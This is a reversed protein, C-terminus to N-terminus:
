LSKHSQVNSVQSPANKVAELLAQKKHPSVGHGILHEQEIDEDILILVALELVFRHIFVESGNYYNRVLQGGDTFLRGKDDFRAKRVYNYLKFDISRKGILFYITQSDNSAIFVNKWSSTRPVYVEFGVSVLTDMVQERSLGIFCKDKSSRSVSISTLLKIAEYEALTPSEDLIFSYNGNKIKQRIVGNNIALKAEQEPSFKALLTPSLTQNETNGKYAESTQKNFREAREVLEESAKVGSESAKELM